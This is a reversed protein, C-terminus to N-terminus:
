VVMNTYNNRVDSPCCYSLRGRKHRQLTFGSCAVDDNEIHTLVTQKCDLSIIFYNSIHSANHLSGLGCSGNLGLCPIIINLKM